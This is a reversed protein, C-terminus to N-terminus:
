DSLSRRREVNGVDLAFERGAASDLDHRYGEARAGHPLWLALASPHTEKSMRPGPTEAATLFRHWSAILDHLGNTATHHAPDTTPQRMAGRATSSEQIAPM